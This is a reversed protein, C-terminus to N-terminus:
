LNELKAAISKMLDPIELRQPCANMCKKCGICDSPKKTLKNLASKADMKDGFLEFDNFIRFIEPIDLGVPCPMCYSCKTCPVSTFSTIEHMVKAIVGSAKEDMPIPHKATNVNDIVQELNSMGSLTLMVGPLSFAYSLALAAAKNEGYSSNIAAIANPVCKALFGGRVPEMVIMPLKYKDALNMLLKADGVELDYYNLQFQVFDWKTYSMIGELVEHSDHFSFGLNKIKGEKKKQLLYEVVGFDVAKKWSDRNLSHVLYNDFYPTQCKQLQENFIRDTDEKCELKFVPMKSTLFYSERPYKSLAHGIFIESQGGHYNYATDFYNIGNEFAYDVMKQGLVYDITGDENKPLRMCGFGLPSTIKKSM